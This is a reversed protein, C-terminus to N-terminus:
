EDRLGRAFRSFLALWFRRFYALQVLLVAGIAASILSSAQYYEPKLEWFLAFEDLILGCGLGFLLSLRRLSRRGTVSLAAVGVLGVLL